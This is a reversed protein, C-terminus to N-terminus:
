NNSILDTINIGVKRDVISIDCNDLDGILGTCDGFLSSCDGTLGTCDGNLGTCDGTLRSCDGTLWSCDGTLISHGGDVKIGNVYHYLLPKIKTLNAEM